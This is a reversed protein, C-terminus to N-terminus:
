RRDSISQRVASLKETATVMPSKTLVANMHDRVSNMSVVSTGLFGSEIGRLPM